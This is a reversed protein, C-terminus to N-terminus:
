PATYIIQAPIFTKVQIIQGGVDQVTGGDAGDMEQQQKVSLYYVTAQTQDPGTSAPPQFIIRITIFDGLMLPIGDITAPSGLLQVTSTGPVLQTNTGYGFTQQWANFLDSGLDVSVTGGWAFISSSSDIGVPTEFVLRSTGTESTGGISLYGILDDNEGVVSVNRQAVDNHQRVYYPLGGTNTM